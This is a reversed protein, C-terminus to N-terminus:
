LTDTFEHKGKTSFPSSFFRIISCKATTEEIRGFIHGSLLDLAALYTLTGHRVYEFEYRGAQGPSPPLTPQLRALVQLGSKEEAAIVYDDPGLAQGQWLRQYLDLVM